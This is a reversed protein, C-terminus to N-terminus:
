FLLTGSFGSGVGIGSVGVGSGEGFLPSSLSTLGNGTGSVFYSVSDVAGAFSLPSFEVRTRIMPIKDPSRTAIM